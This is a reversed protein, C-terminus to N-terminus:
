RGRIPLPAIPQVPRVPLPRMPRYVIRNGVNFPDWWTNRWFRRGYWRNGAWGGGVWRGRPGWSGRAWSRRVPFRQQVSRSQASVEAEAPEELAGPMQDPDVEEQAQQAIALTGDHDVTKNVATPQEACGLTMGVVGIVLLSSLRKPQM